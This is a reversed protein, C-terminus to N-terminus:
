PDCLDGADTRDPFGQHGSTECRNSELSDRRIRGRTYARPSKLSAGKGVQRHAHIGFSGRNLFL